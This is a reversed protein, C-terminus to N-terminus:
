SGSTDKYTFEFDINFQWAGDDEQLAFDNEKRALMIHTNDTTFQKNDISRILSDRMTYGASHDTHYLKFRVTATRYWSGNSYYSANENEKSISLYTTTTNDTKYEGTVVNAATLGVPLTITTDNIMEHIAEEIM